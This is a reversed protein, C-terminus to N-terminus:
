GSCSCCKCSLIILNNKPHLETEPLKCVPCIVYSEIYVRIANEFDIYLIEKTTTLRKDKYIFNTKFKKKFYEIIMKPDRNIDKCVTELNDIEIKNRLKNVNIKNMKYRYNPDIIDNLGTLNIKSM